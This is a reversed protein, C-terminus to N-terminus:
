DLRPFGSGKPPSLLAMRREILYNKRTEILKLKKWSASKHIHTNDLTKLDFYGISRRGFIFCEKNNYSVKDFLRFGYVAYDAQNHKRIEGKLISM